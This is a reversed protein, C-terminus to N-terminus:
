EYASRGVCGIVVEMIRKDWHLYYDNVRADKMGLLVKIQMPARDLKPPPRRVNQMQPFCFSSYIM